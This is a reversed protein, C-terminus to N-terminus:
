LEPLRFKAGATGLWRQFQRVNRCYTRQADASLRGSRNDAQRTALWDAYADLAKDTLQDDYEVAPEQDAAWKLFNGINVQLQAITKPSRPKPRRIARQEDIFDGFRDALTERAAAKTMRTGRPQRSN